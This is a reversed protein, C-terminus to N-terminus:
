FFDDMGQSKQDFSGRLLNEKRILRETTNNRSNKLTTSLRLWRGAYQWVCEDIVYMVIIADEDLGVQLTGDPISIGDPDYYWRRSYYIHFMREGVKVKISIPLGNLKINGVIEGGHLEVFEKAKEGITMKSAERIPETTPKTVIM